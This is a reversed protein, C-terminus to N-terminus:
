KFHLIAVDRKGLRAYCFGVRKYSTKMLPNELGVNELLIIFEREFWSIAEELRDTESLIEGLDRTIHCKQISSMSAGQGEFLERLIKECDEWNGAFRKVRAAEYHYRIYHSRFIFRDSGQVMKPFRNKM